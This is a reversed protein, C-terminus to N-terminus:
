MLLQAVSTQYSTKWQVTGYAITRWYALIAAHVRRYISVLSVGTWRPSPYFQKCFPGHRFGIILEDLNLLFYSMRVNWSSTMVRFFKGCKHNQPPNQPPIWRWNEGTFCLKRKQWISNNTSCIPIQPHSSVDKGKHLTMTIATINWYTLPLFRSKTDFQM